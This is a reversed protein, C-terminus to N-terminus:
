KLMSSFEDLHLDAGWKVQLRTVKMGYVEAIDAWREGFKGAVVALVENGPCLTNAIASEMAGSGTSCHLYARENTMFVSPLRKLVRELILEFEPTRHHLIPAQLAEQVSAPVPVPGPTMLRYTMFTLRRQEKQGPLIM